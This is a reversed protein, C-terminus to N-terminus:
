WGNKEARKDNKKVSMDNQETTLKECSYKFIHLYNRAVYKKKNKKRLFDAGDEIQSTERYSEFREIELNPCEFWIDFQVETQNFHNRKQPIRNIENWVSGNDDFHFDEFQLNIFIGNFHRAVFLKM